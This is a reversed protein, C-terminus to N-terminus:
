ADLFAEIRIGGRELNERLTGSAIIESGRRYPIGIRRNNPALFFHHSTGDAGLETCGLEKLKRCVERASFNSLQSTAVRENKPNLNQWIVLRIKEYVANRLGDLNSEDFLNFKLLLEIAKAIYQPNFNEETTKQSMGLSTRTQNIIEDAGFRLHIERDLEQFFLTEGALYKIVEKDLEENQDEKDLEENKAEKVLKIYDYIEYKRLLTAVIQVLDDQAYNLRNRRVIGEEPSLNIQRM